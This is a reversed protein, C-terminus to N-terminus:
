VATLFMDNSWSAVFWFFRIESVNKPGNQGLIGLSSKEVCFIMENWKWGKLHLLKMCFIQFIRLTYKEFRNLVRIKPGNRVGKEGLVEFCSKEM